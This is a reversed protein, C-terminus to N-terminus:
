RRSRVFGHLISNGDQYYGVIEGRDNIQKPFTGAGGAGPADFTEIHGNTHRLFGHSKGDTTLYFGTIEGELNISEAETGTSGPPDFIVITGNPHRAFGHVVGNADTFYGAIQSFTNISQPWTSASNPADFRIYTGNPQRLFGHDPFPARFFGTIQGFFNVAQPSAVLSSGTPAPDVIVTTGNPQRLFGIYPTGGGVGIIQGRANIGFAGTGDICSYDCLDAGSLAAASDAMSAIPQGSPIRIMTGSRHRQFGSTAIQGPEIFYGVIEGELNLDTVWTATPAAEFSTISGDRERLFGKQMPFPFTSGDTYYGAIEGHLNIAVAVTMSSNPPDFTTITQAQTQVALALLAALAALRLYPISSVLCRM